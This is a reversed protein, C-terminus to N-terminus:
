LYRYIDMFVKKSTLTNFLLEGKGFHDKLMRLRSRINENILITDNTHSEKNISYNIYYSPDADSTFYFVKENNYYKIAYVEGNFTINFFYVCRGKPAKTQVFNDNDKWENSQAYGLYMQGVDGCNMAKAIASQNYKEKVADNLVREYCWGKTPGRDIRKTDNRIEKSIGLEEKLSSAKTICNSIFIMSTTLLADERGRAITDYLRYISQIEDPLESGDENVYEDFIINYVNDFSALKQKGSTSLAAPYCFLEGNLYAHHNKFTLKYDEQNEVRKIDSNIFKIAKEWFSEVPLIKQNELDTVYRTVFVSRYGYKIFDMLAYIGVGVSKGGFRNGEIIAIASNGEYDGTEENKHLKNKWIWDPYYHGNKIM